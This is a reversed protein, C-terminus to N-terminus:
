SGKNGPSGGVAPPPYGQFGTETAAAEHGNSSDSSAPSDPSALRLARESAGGFHAESAGRLLRETAGAYLRESSGRLRLESAGAYMRESAGRLRLESAGAYMRESAGLLRLESAQLFYQESSGGLRIESAGTWRRDSAGVMRESAGGGTFTTVSEAVEHGSVQAWSRYVEWRSLVARSKQAGLGRIVVQWPGYVVHTRAGSKFVRTKGPFVERIPDPVEVPYPFPGAQWATITTPGQWRFEHQAEFTGETVVEEWELREGGLGEDLRVAEEWGVGRLTAAAPAPAVDIPEPLASLPVGNTLTARGPLHSGGREIQGGAMRVTMWEPDSWPAPERRPFEVRGSRAIKVFYGETSKLGIEVILESTPKGIAFFWQRDGREIRHDFNSHANTGDFIRATTDYVRLNLWADPGGRGLQSRARAIAEDLVEWYVYLRDPDIPMATVRDKGYGWPIEKSSERLIDRSQQSTDRGPQGVEFKHSFPQHEPQDDGNADADADADTDTDARVGTSAMTPKDKSGNSSQSPPAPRARDAQRAEGAGDTGKKLLTVLDHWADLVKAALADKKLKAVASLGLKKSADLLQKQSLKKLSEPTVDGPSAHGDAGGLLGALEAVLDRSSSQKAPM